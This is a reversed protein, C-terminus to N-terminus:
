FPAENISKQCAEKTYFPRSHDHCYNEVRIIKGDLTFCATVRGPYWKNGIHIPHQESVLDNGQRYAWKVEPYWAVAAAFMAYTEM